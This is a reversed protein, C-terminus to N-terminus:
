PVLGDVCLQVLIVVSPTVRSIGMIFTVVELPLKDGSKPPSTSTRTGSCGQSSLSISMLDPLSSALSYTISLMACTDSPGRQSGIRAKKTGSLTRPTRLVPRCLFLLQFFSGAVPEVREFGVLLFILFTQSM